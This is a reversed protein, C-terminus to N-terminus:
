VPISGLDEMAMMPVRSRAVISGRSLARKEAKHMERTRHPSEKSLIQDGYDKPEISVSTVLSKQIAISM